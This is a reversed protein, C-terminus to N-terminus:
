INWIDRWGMPWTIEGILTLLTSTLALIVWACGSIIMLIKVHKCRVKIQRQAKVGHWLRWVAHWMCLLVTAGSFAANESPLQVKGASEAATLTSKARQVTPHISVNEFCSSAAQEPTWPPKHLHWCVTALAIFITTLLCEPQFCSQTIVICPAANTSAHQKLHQNSKTIQDLFDLQVLLDTHKFAYWVRTNRVANDQWYPLFTRHTEQMNFMVKDHNSRTRSGSGWPDWCLTPNQTLADLKPQIQTQNYVQSKCFPPQPGTFNLLCGKTAKLLKKMCTTTFEVANLCLVASWLASCDCAPARHCGEDRVKIIIILHHSHHPKTTQQSFLSLLLSTAM